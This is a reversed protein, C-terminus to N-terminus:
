TRPDVCSLLLAKYPTSEQAGVLRPALVLGAAGIAAFRFFHRRDLGHPLM